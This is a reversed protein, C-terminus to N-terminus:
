TSRRKSKEDPMSLIDLAHQMLEVGLSEQMIGAHLVLHQLRRDKTNMDHAFDRAEIERYVALKQRHLELRRRIEDALGTPGVVAEARLRIMLEDRLPKPDDHLAIWRKLEKRGAPLIRYARKRGRAQEVPASEVWGEDELRALERYIQQHTAHWFYGISRDFRRTLESGSGPREALSTLLAHPLSM